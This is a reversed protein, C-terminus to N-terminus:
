TRKFRRKDYTVALFFDILIIFALSLIFNKGSMLHQRSLILLGLIWLAVLLSERFIIHFQRYFPDFKLIKIRIYYFFLLFSTFFAVGLTTFFFFVSLFGLEEPSILILVVSWLFWSITCSIGVILILFRERM